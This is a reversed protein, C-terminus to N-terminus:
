LPEVEDGKIIAQPNEELLLRFGRDGVLKKIRKEAGEFIEPIKRQAHADTAILDILGKKLLKEATKRVQRGYQGTLSGMNLQMIAGMDKLKGAKEPHRIIEANREPHRESM